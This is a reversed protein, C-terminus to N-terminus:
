RTEHSLCKADRRIGSFRDPPRSLVGFVATVTVHNVGQLTFTQREFTARRFRRPSEPSSPRRPFFPSLIVASAIRDSYPAPGLIDSVKVPFYDLRLGIM